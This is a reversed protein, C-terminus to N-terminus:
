NVLDNHYHYVHKHLQTYISDNFAVAASDQDVDDGADDVFSGNEGQTPSSSSLQPSLSTKRGSSLSSSLCVKFFSTFRCICKNSDTSHKEINHLDQMITVFHSLLM